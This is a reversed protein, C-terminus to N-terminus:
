NRKFKFFYEKHESFPKKCFIDLNRKPNSIFERKYFEDLNWTGTNFDFINKFSLDKQQNLDIMLEPFQNLRYFWNKRQLVGKKTKLINKYYILDKFKIFYFSSNEEKKYILSPDCIQKKIKELLEDDFKIILNKLLDDSVKVEYSSLYSKHYYSLYYGTCGIGHMPTHMLPFIEDDVSFYEAVRFNFVKYLGEYWVYMDLKITLINEDQGKQISNYTKLPMVIDGPFIYEGFADKQYVGGLINNMDYIKICM